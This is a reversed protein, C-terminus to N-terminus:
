DQFHGANRANRDPIQNSHPDKNGDAILKVPIETGFRNGM